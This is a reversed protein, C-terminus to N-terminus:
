ATRPNRRVTSGTRQGTRSTASNSSQEQTRKNGKFVYTLSAGNAVNTYIETETLHELFYAFGDPGHPVARVKGDIVCEVSVTLGSVGCFNKSVEGHYRDQFIQGASAPDVLAASAAVCRALMAVFQRADTRAISWKSKSDRKTTV